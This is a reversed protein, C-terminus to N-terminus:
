NESKELYRLRRRSVLVGAFSGAACLTLFWQGFRTFWTLDERYSFRAGLVNQEFSPLSASVRGAPDIVSTIGDNTARLLWRSNELARMRAILLHQHRAASRGYWSDNSINVLVEAGQHVFERVGRLFVSEYCVFTGIRHGAAETVVVEAGPHFNGAELTIKNIFLSFPWPVFEGFPVLFMKSYVSLLDGHEDIVLASNLPSGGDPGGREISNFIIPAGVRKALEGIYDRFGEDQSYYAPVPYEPWIVLSPPTPDIQEAGEASLYAMRELHQAHRRYDWRGERLEDPHVNPQVLRATEVAPFEIPLAPLFFLPVLPSLWALERFGRRVVLVAVAVNFMVLAFSPGYIGTIPALRSLLPLDIAANGLQLWTFALYQHLGEFCVWTAAVAPIAWAQRMLPGAFGSFVALYLGKALFFGLFIAGAGAASLGAYSHMVDYIWYCVGGWYVAGALWGVLFRSRWSEERACAVLLPAVAVLALPTISFRPFILIQLLGSLVALAL